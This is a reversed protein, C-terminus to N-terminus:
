KVMKQFVQKGQTELRLMYVGSPLGSTNIQDNSIQLCIEGQMNYITISLDAPEIGEIFVQNEFPNPYIQLSQFVNGDLANPVGQHIVGVAQLDFGGTPFPTPYSDNIINGESDFTGYNEDISGVVDIIKVYRIQSKDLLPSDNIDSIDFPTGYKGIYKGALNHLDTAVPTGFTGIQEDTQTASVAPFRFYNVGDSSIEVVALELYGVSGNEFVAFDFGPKDEIPLDFTLMAEGRDGLSVVSGDPYGLAYEPEGGTAYGLDPNSINQYGRQLEIGTAWAVFLESDKHIATSGEEGAQPAFPQAHSMWVCGGFLMLSFIKKM